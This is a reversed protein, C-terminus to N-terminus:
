ICVRIYGSVCVGVCKDVFVCVSPMYACMCIPMSVYMSHMFVHLFEFACIHLLIYM